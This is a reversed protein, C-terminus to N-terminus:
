SCTYNRSDLLRKMLNKAAENRASRQNRGKGEAYILESGRHYNVRVIFVTANGYLHESEKVEYEVPNGLAQAFEQLRTVYDIYNKRKTYYLLQYLLGLFADYFIDEGTQLFKVFINGLAAKYCEVLMRRQIYEDYHKEGKGVQLFRYLNINVAEELVTGATIETIRKRLEGQEDSSFSDYAASVAMVHAGIEKYSSRVCPKVGGRIENWYSDSAFIINLEEDTLITPPISLIGRISSIAEKRNADAVVGGLFRDNGNNRDKRKITIGNDRVCKEAAQKSANKKSSGEGKYIRGGYDLRVIFVDRGESDSKSEYEYSYHIKKKQATEMVMSKYDFSDVKNATDVIDLLYKYAYYTKNSLFIAGVIQRVVDETAKEIPVCQMQIYEQVMHMQMFADCFATKKASSLRHLESASLDPNELFVGLMCATTVVIKGLGLLNEALRAEEPKNAFMSRHKLATEMLEPKYDINLLSKLDSGAMM